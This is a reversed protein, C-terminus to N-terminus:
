GGEGDRISTKRGKKRKGNRKSEPEKPFRRTRKTLEPERFEVKRGREPIKRKAKGTGGKKNTAGSLGGYDAIVGIVTKGEREKRKPKKEHKELIEKGGLTETGQNKGEGIPQKL